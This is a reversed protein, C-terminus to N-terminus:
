NCISFKGSAQTPAEICDLILGLIHQTNVDLEESENHRDYQRLIEQTTLLIGNAETNRRFAIAAAKRVEIPPTWRSALEVLARQSEPTDLNGLVKVVKTSLEPVYLAALVCGQVRRVDYLKNEASSLEALRDLPRPPM